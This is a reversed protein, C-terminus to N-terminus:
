KYGFNEIHSHLFPLATQMHEKYHRWRGIARSYVPKCTDHYSPTSTTYKKNQYYNLIRKDWDLGIFELLDKTQNEIDSVLDEYRLKYLNLEFVEEYHHWLNMTADYFRAASKLDYFNAMADNAKFYQMFCSLCVDRPDRLLLIIRAEPFVRYILPLDIINLPLKDVFLKQGPLAGCIKQALDWYKHRLDVVQSVTLENLNYPYGQKNDSITNLKDITLQVIGEEDSTIVDPHSSLIRTTLSTGSRPFGVLFVPAPLTDASFHNWTTINGPAAANRCHNIRDHWSDGQYQPEHKATTQQCENFFNYAKDYEGLRDLVMGLRCLIPALETTPISSANRLLAELRTRATDLDGDNMELIAMRLGAMPDGPTNFLIRELSQRAKATEGMREYLYALNVLLDKPPQPLLRLALEYSSIAKNAQGPQLRYCEGMFYRAVGNEPNNKVVKQFGDLAADFKEQYLQTRATNLYAEYYEPNLSIARLGCTEADEYLGLAGNITCLLHWVEADNPEVKCISLCSDKAQQLKGAKYLSVAQEKILKNSQDNSM